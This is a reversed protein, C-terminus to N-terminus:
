FNSFTHTYKIIFARSQNLPLAPNERQRNTNLNENYVFYFNNGDRPNYRLRINAAMGDAVSNYQIFSLLSLKVNPTYEMKVRGIHSTFDEGPFIINNYEYTASLGFKSSINWMPSVLLSNQYGNFYGGSVIQISTRLPWGSPMDYNLQGKQFEYYGEDIITEKSLLFPEQLNETQHNFKFTLKHGRILYSFGSLALKWHKFHDM